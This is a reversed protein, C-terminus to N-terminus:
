PESESLRTTRLHSYRLSHTYYDKKKMKITDHLRAHSGTRGAEGPGILTRIRRTAQSFGAVIARLFGVVSVGHTYLLTSHEIAHPRWLASM